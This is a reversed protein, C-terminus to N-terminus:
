GNKLSLFLDKWQQMVKEPSFKQINSLANSSLSKRLDVDSMMNKLNEIFADRKRNPVLIGSVGNEIIHAPGTPCDYAIVPLGASQSELLVMPFCETESTMAYVAYEKMIQELNDTAALIRVNLIQEREIKDLLKKKTGIYDDGFIDLQWEPFQPAVVKWIELLEDFRKVPSLRGASLIKKEDPQYDQVMEPAPNPIVSVAAHHHFDVEGSNLLVLRDYRAEVIKTLKETFSLKGSNRYYRSGHIEKIVPIKGAIWPLFFFDPAYSCMVIVDPKLQRITKKLRLRHRLVKSLNAPHFFSKRIDYGIGLDMRKVKDSFPYVAPQEQQRHTCVTVEWGPQAAFWNAKQSLVKEIGGHLFTQDTLYLINM